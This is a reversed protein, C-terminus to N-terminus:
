TVTAESAKTRRFCCKRMAARRRLAHSSRRALTLPVRGCLSARFGPPRTSTIALVALIPITKLTAIQQDTYTAPGTGPEVLIMGKIGSSNVLAAELPFHGSQSHGMLVAGGTVQGALDSLAKFAPNPSPLGANVDPIGQKSLEDAAAVPFQENRIPSALSRDSVSIPGSVEDSFRPLPPQQGAPTSGTRVKSFVAQDFGSRGRAVQDPVYVPHGKRVFYEDWGMRGDPTTEWSKGTITMGHVM